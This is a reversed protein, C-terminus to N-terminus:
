DPKKSGLLRVEPMTGAMDQGDLTKFGVIQMGNPAKEAQTVIVPHEIGEKDKWMAYQPIKIAVPGLSQGDMSFIAQGSDVDDKTAVRGTVFGTKPLEPWTVKEEAYGTTSLLLLGVFLHQRLRM